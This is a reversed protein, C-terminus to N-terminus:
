SDAGGQPPGPVTKPITSEAPGAPPSAPPQRPTDAPASADVKAKWAAEARAAGTAGPARDARDAAARARFTALGQQLGAGLAALKRVPTTIARSVGGVAKEAGKTAGVASVMIDDVHDLQQNVGDVTTQAKGLIPVVEDTVRTLATGLRGFVGALRLLMYSLGIGTLVLFLALAARVADSWDM